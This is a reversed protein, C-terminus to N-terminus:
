LQSASTQNAGFVDYQPGFQGLFYLSYARKFVLIPLLLVTGIYPLMMLCGALCCTVLVAFGVLTGIAM